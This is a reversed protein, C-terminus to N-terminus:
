NADHMSIRSAELNSRQEKEYRKKLKSHDIPTSLRNVLNEEMEDTHRRRRSRSRGKHRKSSKKHKRKKEKKEKKKGTSPNRIRSKPKRESSRLERLTRNM